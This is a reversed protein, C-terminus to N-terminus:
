GRRHARSARADRAITKEREGLSRRLRPWDFAPGPDTKRGPAIESHGVVAAKRLSPYAARLAAILSALARYQKATYRRDDTGELEIGVSFDNCADRGEYSSRGAHWARRDFPVYQTLKGDRAILVHASVKLGAIAAFYPDAEAPLANCFLRDIWGGGFRGPPLSIGHVVILSLETGAPRPDHNPSAVRRVRRVWGTETDIIM